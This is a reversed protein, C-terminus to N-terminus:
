GGGVLDDADVGDCTTDGIGKAIRVARRSRVNSIKLLFAMAELLHDDVIGPALVNSEDIRRALGFLHSHAQDRRGIEFNQIYLWDCTPEKGLIFILRSPIKYRCDARM